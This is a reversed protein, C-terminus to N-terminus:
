LFYSGHNVIKNALSTLFQVGTEVLEASAALRDTSSVVACLCDAERWWRLEQGGPLKATQEVGGGAARGLRADQILWVTQPRPNRDNARVRDFLTVTLGNMPGRTVNTGTTRIANTPTGQLRVATFPGPVPLEVAPEFQWGCRAALSQRQGINRQVSFRRWFKVAWVVVAIEVILMPLGILWGNVQPFADVVLAVALLGGISCLAMGNIPPNNIFLQGSQRNRRLEIRISIAGVLMPALVTAVGSPTGLGALVVDSAYGIKKNSLPIFAHIHMRRL